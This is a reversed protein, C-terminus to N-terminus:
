AEQGRWRADGPYVKIPAAVIFGRPVEGKKEHGWILAWTSPKSSHLTGGENDKLPNSNM